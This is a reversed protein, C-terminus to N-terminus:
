CRPLGCRLGVFSRRDLHGVTPATFIGGANSSSCWGKNTPMCQSACLYAGPPLPGTAGPWPPPGAPAGLPGGATPTMRFGAPRRAAAARADLCAGRACRPWTSRRSGRRTRCGSGARRPSGLGRGSSQTFNRGCRLGSDACVCIWARRRCISLAVFADHHKLFCVTGVVTGAATQPVSYAPVSRHRCTAYM